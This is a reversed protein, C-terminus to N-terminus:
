FTCLAKTHLFTLGQSTIAHYTVPIHCSEQIGSFYSVTKQRQGIGPENEVLSLSSFITEVTTKMQISFSFM